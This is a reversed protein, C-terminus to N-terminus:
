NLKEAADSHLKALRSNFHDLWNRAGREISSFGHKQALDLRVLHDKVTEYSRPHDLFAKFREDETQPEIQDDHFLSM